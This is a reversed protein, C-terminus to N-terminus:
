VHARGIESVVNEKTWNERECKRRVADDSRECTFGPLGAKYRRNIQESIEVFTNTPLLTRLLLEEEAKWRSTTM